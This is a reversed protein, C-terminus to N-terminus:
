NWTKESNKLCNTKEEPTTKEELVRKAVAEAFDLYMVAEEEKANYENHAIRNRIDMFHKANKPSIVAESSIPKNSLQYFYTEITDSQNLVKVSKLFAELSSYAIIISASYEKKDVLRHADEFITQIPNENSEFPLNFVSSCWESLGQYFLDNTKDNNSSYHLFQYGLLSSPVVSGADCIFLYNPPVKQTIIQGLEYMVNPNGDSVDIIAARSKQILSNAILNWNEGPSLIDDLRVPSIGFKALTPYLISSVRAIRAFSCSIFCLKNNESPVLLQENVRENKSTTPTANTCYDKLEKFFDRLITKYNKPEGDLNVVTINRRQYRMRKEESVGVTICYAPRSMKGLRNRLLQWLGRLDADDLSYGVLLMTSSIFLNSIFTAMIPNRDLYLDFDRETIVMKDPHNFDGHIKVIRAEDKKGVTLRDETVIVSVPRQSQVMADELLTDFNTTCITGTFFGCFAQFAEGPQLEGHHLTKILFEILRPRTYLEEYFSLADIANGNYDYGSIEEAARKGLENWDPMKLGKPIDANKSFGAGVIPIVRNSVLDELLPKPITNIYKYDM